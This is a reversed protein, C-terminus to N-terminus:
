EVINYYILPVRARWVQSGALYLSPTSRLLDDTYPQWVIDDYRLRDLLLRFYSLDHRPAGRVRRERPGAWRDGLPLHQTIPLAAYRPRLPTLREFAWLQLIWLAGGINRRHQSAMSCICLEHYLHALVASGWSISRQDELDELHPLIRLGLHGSNLDTFCLGDLAAWLYARVAWEVEMDSVDDDLERFHRFQEFLWGTGVWSSGSTTGSLELERGLLAVGVGQYDHHPGGIVAFGDVPLGTLIAVNQLTVTCEGEPLMFTHTEPRWREVLSTVLSMDVQYQRMEIFGSLGTRVVGERIRPHISDFPTLGLSMRSGLPRLEGPNDWVVSSVHDDQMTLLDTEVPGPDYYEQRAAMFSVRIEQTGLLM